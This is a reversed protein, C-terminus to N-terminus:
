TTQDGILRVVVVPVDVHEPKGDTNYPIERDRRVPCLDAQHFEAAVDVYREIQRGVGIHVADDFPQSFQVDVAAVSVNRAGKMGGARPHEDLIASCAGINTSNHEKDGVTGGIDVFVLSQRLCLQSLVGPNLDESNSNRSAHVLSLQFRDSRIRGFCMEVVDGVKPHQFRHHTIKRM